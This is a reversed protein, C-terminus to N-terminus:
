DKLKGLMLGAANETYRQGEDIYEHVTADNKWKGQKKILQFDINNRAASTAFGRRLSHSSIQKYFNYGTNKVLTRVIDTISDPKLPQNSVHGWRNIARFVAGDNDIQLWRKLATAPCISHGSWPISKSIGKGEQDTKSRPLNITIGDDDWAVHQVQITALEESRFAGFFGILLLARDRVSKLSDTEQQLKNTIAAVENLSLARAKRKPRGHTRHIGKLTKRVGPDNAPNDFEQYEHWRSIATLRLTLTRPNLTDAYHVLYNILMDPTAPLLGGWGQYHRIASQYAKRTNQATAVSLYHDKKETHIAPLTNSFQLVKNNSM